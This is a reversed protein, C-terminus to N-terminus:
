FRSFNNLFNQQIRSWTPFDVLNFILALCIICISLQILVGWLTKDTYKIKFKFDMLKVLYRNKLSSSNLIYFFFFTFASFMGGIIYATESGKLVVVIFFAALAFVFDIFKIILGRKKDNTPDWHPIMELFFYSFIGAFPSFTTGAVGGFLMGALVHPTLLM